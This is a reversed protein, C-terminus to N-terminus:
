QSWLIVSFKVLTQMLKGAGFMSFDYKGVFDIFKKDVAAQLSEASMPKSGDKHADMIKGM